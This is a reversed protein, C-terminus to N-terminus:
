SETNKIKIAGPFDINIKTNRYWPDAIIIKKNKENSILAPILSFTSNGVIFNEYTLMKAFTELTDEVSNSSHVIEDADNFIKNNKVWTYDDTFVSYHFNDIENKARQIAEIYFSNKLEEDIKLYDSRRVHLVTSGTLAPINITKKVIKNESLSSIIFNKNRILIEPKQWHGEFFNVGGINKINFNKDNHKTIFLNKTIKMIIEFLVFLSDSIIKMKFTAIPFILERLDVGPDKIKKSKKFNSTNIFVNLGLDILHKAFAIQFIQNGLGGKLYVIGIKKM